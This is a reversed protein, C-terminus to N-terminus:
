LQLVQPNYFKGHKFPCNITLFAFDTMLYEDKRWKLGMFSLNTNLIFIVFFIEVLTMSADYFYDM